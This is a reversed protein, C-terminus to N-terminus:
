ARIPFIPEARSDGLRLFLYTLPGLSGFVLAMLIFPIASKGRKRADFYMWISVLALAIFLDVTVGISALRPYPIALAASGEVAFNRDDFSRIWAMCNWSGVTKRENHAEGNFDLTTKSTLKRGGSARVQNDTGQCPREGV